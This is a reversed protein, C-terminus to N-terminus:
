AVQLALYFLLSISPFTYKVVLAGHIPMMKGPEEPPRYAGAM